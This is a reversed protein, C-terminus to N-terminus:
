ILNFEIAGWQGQMGCVYRDITFVFAAPWTAIFRDNYLQVLFVFSPLSRIPCFLLSVFSLVYLFWIQLIRRNKLIIWSILSKKRRRWITWCLYVFSHSCTCEVYSEIMSITLSLIYLFFSVAIRLTIQKFEILWSVVLM